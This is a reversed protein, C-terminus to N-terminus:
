VSVGSDEEIDGNTALSGTADSDGESGLGRLSRLVEACEASTLLSSTLRALRKVELAGCEMTDDLTEHGLTAVEGGSVASTTLRDVSGVESILVELELVSSTTNEGHGVGSWAGVTALEEEAEGGSRMEVTGMDNESVDNVAQGDEVSNLGVRAVAAVLRSLRNDNGVASLEGSYLTDFVILLHLM